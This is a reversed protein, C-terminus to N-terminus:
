FLRRREKVQRCFAIINEPPVDGQINHSPAAVFGGNKGMLDLIHSTEEEVEGPSGFTLLQQEDIGGWFCLREGFSSKLREAEM